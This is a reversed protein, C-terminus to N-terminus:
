GRGRSGAAHITGFRCLLARDRRMRGRVLGAALLSGGVLAIAHQPPLVCVLALMLGGIGAPICAPPFTDNRM